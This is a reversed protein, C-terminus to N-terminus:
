RDRDGGQHYAPQADREPEQNRAIEAQDQRDEERIHEEMQRYWDRDSRDTGSQRLLEFDKQYMKVAERNGTELNDGAGALVVHVHPNDTNDHKVAYWHLERGQKKELDDMVGRTWERWDAIHEAEGPSLVIKHYAVQRHAHNMVDSVADQRSVVDQDKSFIRRDDRSENGERHRHEVYKFHAILRGQAAAPNGKVFGTGRAIM